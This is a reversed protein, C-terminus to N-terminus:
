VEELKLSYISSTGKKNLSIGYIVDASEITLPQHTIMIVQRHQSLQKIRSILKRLNVEDLAPEVEDFVVFPVDFTEQLAIVLAMATLSKEGGSLLNINKLNKGPPRAFIKLYGSEDSFELRATGGSFLFSFESTFNENFKKLSANFKETIIEDVREIIQQLNLSALRIDRAQARYFELRDNLREFDRVAFPNYEGIQEVKRELTSVKQQLVDPPDLSDLDFQNIVETVPKGSLKELEEVTSSIKEELLSLQSKVANLRTNLKAEREHLREMSELIEEVQQQYSNILKEYNQYDAKQSIIFDVISLYDRYLENMQILNRRGRDRLRARQELNEIRNKLDEIEERTRKIMGDLFQRHTNLEREREKLRSRHEKRSNLQQELNLLAEKKVTLENGAASLENQIANDREVLEVLEKEKEAILDELRAIQSDLEEVLTLLKEQEAEIQKLRDIQEAKKLQKNIQNLKEDNRRLKEELRAKEQQLRTLRIEAEKLSKEVSFITDKGSLRVAVGNNFLVFGSRSIFNTQGDFQKVAESLSSVMKFSELHRKLHGALPTLIFYDPLENESTFSDVAVPEPLAVFAAHAVELLEEPILRSTADPYKGSLARNLGEIRNKLEATQETVTKIRAKLHLRDNELRNRDSVLKQKLDPDISEFLKQRTQDLEALRERWSNLKEYLLALQGNLTELNSEARSVLERFKQSRETLKEYEQNIRSYEERVPALRSNLENIEGTLSDIQAQTKKLERYIDDQERQFKRLEDTLKKKRITLSSIQQHISSMEQVFNMGKEESLQYLTSLTSRLEKLRQYATLNRDRYRTQEITENLIKKRQQLSDKEGTLRSLEDELARIENEATDYEKKFATLCSVLLETKAQDLEQRAEVVQYYDKVQKRLPRLEAALEKMLAEIRELKSDVSALKRLSLEKKRRYAAVGSAEEIIARLDTSAPNILEAIRNQPIIGPLEIGLGMHSLLERVDFLRCHRENIFYSGEGDATVRRKISVESSEVPLLGDSNDFVLTVEAYPAPKLFKNGAFIVDTMSQGRLFRPNQEGLVWLIADVINSKGTGNPGIIVSFGPNFQIVTQSAFSKFGKIRLTKLFM